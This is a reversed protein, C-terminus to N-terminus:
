NIPKLGHGDLSAHVPAETREKNVTNVTAQCLSFHVQSSKGDFCSIKLSSSIANSLMQSPDRKMGVM